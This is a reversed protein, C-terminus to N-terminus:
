TCMTSARTIQPYLNSCIMLFPSFFSWMFGSVVYSFFLFIDWFSTPLAHFLASRKPAIVRLGLDVMHKLNSNQPTRMTWLHSISFVIHSVCVQVSCVVAVSKNTTSTESTCVDISMWWPFLSAVENFHIQERFVCVNCMYAPLWVSPSICEFLRDRCVFHDLPVMRRICFILIM